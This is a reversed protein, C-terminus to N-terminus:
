SRSFAFLQKVPALVGKVFRIFQSIRSWPGFFRLFGRINFRLVGDMVTYTSSKWTLKKGRGGALAVNRQAEENELNLAGGLHDAYGHNQHVSIVAPTADVLSAGIRRVRHLLANDFYARGVAFSPLNVWLGRPFAFFDCSRESRLEGELVVRSCIAQEWGDSFSLEQNIDLNWPRAGMLFRRKGATVVELAAIFDSMLIIDANVYCFVDAESAAEAQRFIDNLLPTGFENTQVSPLHTLGFEQCTEATGVEDGFLIVQPRPKLFLWSRIANRQITKIHEDVFPKPCAFLTLM